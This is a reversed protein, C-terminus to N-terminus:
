CGTENNQYQHCGRTVINKINGKYGTTLATDRLPYQNEKLTDDSLNSISVTGKNTKEKNDVYMEIDFQFVFPILKFSLEM